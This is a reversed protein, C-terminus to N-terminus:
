GLEFSCSFSRHGLRMGHLLKWLYQHELSRNPKTCATSMLANLLPRGPHWILGKKLDAAERGARRQLHRPSIRAGGLLFASKLRRCALEGCKPVQLAPQAPCVQTETLYIWGDSVKQLPLDGHLRM